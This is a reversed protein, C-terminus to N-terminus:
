HLTFRVPVTVWVPVPRGKAMAPKFEWQRVAAMAAEDLLPISQVMRTDEVRGQTGILAQVRLLGQVGASRAADPYSPPVKRIAIPGQDIVVSADPGAVEDVKLTDSIPEPAPRAAPNPAPHRVERTSSCGAMVLAAVLASGLALPRVNL